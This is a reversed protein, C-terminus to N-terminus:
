PWYNQSPSRSLIASTTYSLTLPPFSSCTVQPIYNGCNEMTVGRANFSNLYVTGCDQFHYINYIQRDDEYMAQIDSNIHPYITMNKLGLNAPSQNVVIANVFTNGGVMDLMYVITHSPILSEPPAGM